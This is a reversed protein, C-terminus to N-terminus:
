RVALVPSDSGRAGKERPAAGQRMDTPTHWLRPPARIPNVSWASAVRLVPSDAAAGRNTTGTRLFAAPREVTRIYHTTVSRAMETTRHSECPTFPQVKSSRRAQNIAGPASGPPYAPDNCLGQTSRHTLRSFVPANSLIVSSKGFSAQRKGQYILQKGM